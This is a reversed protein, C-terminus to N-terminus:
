PNVEETLLSNYFELYAPLYEESLYELRPKEGDQLEAEVSETLSESGQIYGDAFTTAGKHLSVGAEDRYAALDEMTLNNISAKEIFSEPFKHEV